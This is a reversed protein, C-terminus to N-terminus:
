ESTVVAAAGRRPFNVLASIVVFDIVGAGLYTFYIPIECKLWM